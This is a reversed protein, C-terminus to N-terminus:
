VTANANFVRKSCYPPAIILESIIKSIMSMSIIIIAIPVLYFFWAGMNALLARGVIRNAKEFIRKISENKCAKVIRIREDAEKFFTPDKKKKNRVLFLSYITINPIKTLFNNIGDHVFWFAKEESKDIGTIKLNRIEDRLKFLEDRIYMRISPLIVSEYLLHFLSLFVLVILLYNM